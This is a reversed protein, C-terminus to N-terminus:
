LSGIQFAYSFFLACLRTQVCFGKWIVACSCLTNIYLCMDQAHNIDVKTLWMFAAGTKVEQVDYNAVSFNKNSVLNFYVNM